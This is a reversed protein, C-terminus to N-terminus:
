CFWICTRICCSTFCCRDPISFFIDQITVGYYSALALKVEDRPIRQATEYMALSSKSIGVSKAVEAQTKKGRMAVLKEAIKKRDVRRVKKGHPESSTFMM